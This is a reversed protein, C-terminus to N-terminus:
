KPLLIKQGAYIVDESTIGNMACIDKVRSMTGYYKESIRSLSDGKQVTYETLIGASTEAAAGTGASTGATTEESTGAPAGGSTEGSTETGSVAQGGEGDKATEGSDSVNEGTEGGSLADDSTDSSGDAGGGANEETEDNETGDTNQGTESVARSSGNETQTKQQGDGAVEGEKQGSATIRGNAAVASSDTQVDRGGLIGPNRSLYNMGLALAAAAACVTIGYALVRNGSKKKQQEQKQGVIKRFDSVAQDAVQDVDEVRANHNHDIMYNQM